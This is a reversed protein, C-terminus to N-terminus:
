AIAMRETMRCLRAPMKYLLKWTINIPKSGSHSVYKAPGLFCYSSSIGDTNKNERVFLLITSSGNLYRKGTASETSTTSQSQWHFLEDSIAYDLYMTTPSYHKESKNLTVLFIDTNIEPLYKVGERMEPSKGMTWNGLAALIEDRTYNAHLELPCDFPLEPKATVLDAHEFLYNLVDLLESFFFQNEKLKAVSEQVTKIDTNRGWMSFHFMTLIREEDETLAALRGAPAQLLELLIKLQYASNLHCIRLLGKRLRDEESFEFDDRLNAKQCLRAFLAKQYITALKLHHYDVFNELTLPKGTESEFTALRSVLMAQRGASISGKINELIRKQAEKELQIHCGAPLHPFGHEMEDIVNEGSSGLMARFRYEFNFNKHANGVFDLVTLCEKDEHLRLGRGLQQLFVTLSETPRLFLVTDIEKIDVM